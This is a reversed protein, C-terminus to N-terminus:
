GRGQALKNDLMYKASKQVAEMMDTDCRDLEVILWAVKGSQGAEVIGRVDMKGDGVATMAEAKNVPGDKIHLSHAKDAWRKVFQVPDPGGVAVWYTDIQGWLSPALEYLWELAPRGDVEALEFDHNHYGLTIDHEALKAAVAELEDALKRITGEGEFRDAPIHPIVIHDYGLAGALDVAEPVDAPDVLKQHTSCAKLGLDDIVKRVEAPAHGHLGAFEVGAYGFEAIKALTGPFDDKAIDRVSYLQIALPKM